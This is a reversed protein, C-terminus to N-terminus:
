RGANLIFQIMAYSSMLAVLGLCAWLVINAGKKIQESKAQATMMTIGGYIVMILAISGFVGTVMRIMNGIFQQPTSASLKNLVSADPIEFPTEEETDPPPLTDLPPFIACTVNVMIAGDNYSESDACNESSIPTTSGKWTSTYNTRLDTLQAARDAINRREISSSGIGPPNTCSLTAFALVGDHILGQNRTGDLPFLLQNRYSGGTTNFNVDGNENSPFCSSITITYNCKCQEEATLVPVAIGSSM